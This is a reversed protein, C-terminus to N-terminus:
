QDVNSEWVRRDMGDSKMLVLETAFAASFSQPLPITAVAMSSMMAVETSERTVM